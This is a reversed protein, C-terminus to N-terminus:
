DAQALAEIHPRYVEFEDTPLSQEAYHRLRRAVLESCQGAFEALIECTLVQRHPLFGSLVIERARDWIEDDALPHALRQRLYSAWVQDNRLARRLYILDAGYPVEGAFLADPAEDLRRMAESLGWRYLPDYSQWDGFLVQVWSEHDKLIFELGKDGYDIKLEGGRVSVSPGYQEQNRLIASLCLDVLSPPGEIDMEVLRVIALRNVYSSGHSALRLLQGRDDGARKVRQNCFLRYKQTSFPSNPGLQPIILSFLFDDFFENSFLEHLQPHVEEPASALLPIGLGRVSRVRSLLVVVMRWVNLNRLDADAVGLRTLEARYIQETLQRQNGDYAVLASQFIACALRQNPELGDEVLLDSGRLFELDVLQLCALLRSGWERQDAPFDLLMNFEIYPLLTERTVRAREDRAAFLYRLRRIPNPEIFELFAPELEGRLREMLPGYADDEMNPLMAIAALSEGISWKSPDEGNLIKPLVDRAVQSSVQVRLGEIGVVQAIRRYQPLSVGFGDFNIEKLQQDSLDSREFIERHWLRPLPQIVGCELIAQATKWPARRLCQGLFFSSGRTIFEYEVAQNCLDRDNAFLETLIATVRDRAPEEQYCSLITGREFEALEHRLTRRLIADDNREHLARVDEQTLGQRPVWTSLASLHPLTQLLDRHREILRAAQNRTGWFLWASLAGYLLSAKWSRDRLRALAVIGLGLLIGKAFEAIGMGRAMEVPGIERGIAVNNQINKLM